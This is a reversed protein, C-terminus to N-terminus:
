RREGLHRIVLHDFAHSSGYSGRPHALTCGGSAWRTIPPHTPALPARLRHSLWAFAYPETARWFQFNHGGRPFLITEVRLPNRAVAAFARADRNPLTDQTGAMVLMSIHPPPLHQARWQPTNANALDASGGFLEGTSHDHAPHVYGSLSVAASFMDPHRMALNLSCFGGTSYGMLAWGSRDPTARFASTVARHVDETLYTDAKPGGVVDVCQTDRPMAINQLPAVAILPVSRRSAIEADLIQQLQLGDTWNEPRGPFGTLLQVVPFQAHPAAPDGYAAPLYVLARQPPVGSVTGPIVMQVVTGHGAHFAVQIGRQHVADLKGVVRPPPAATVAPRGLVESWSTFFRARSNIALGTLAIALLQCLVILGLRSALRVVRPGRTRSPLRFCAAIAGATLLAAVVITATSTLGM